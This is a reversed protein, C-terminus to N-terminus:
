TASWVIEDGNFRYIGKVQTGIFCIWQYSLYELLTARESVMAHVRGPEGSVGLFAKRHIDRSRFGTQRVVPEDDLLLTNHSQNLWAM